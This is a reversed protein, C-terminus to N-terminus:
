EVAKIKKGCIPCYKYRYQEEELCTIVLETDHPSHLYVGDIEWECCDNEHEKVLENVICMVEGYTNARNSCWAEKERFYADKDFGSRCIEAQVINYKIKEELRGILKEIFEKM